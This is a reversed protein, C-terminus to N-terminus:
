RPEQEGGAFFDVHPGVYDFGLGPFFGVWLASNHSFYVFVPGFPSPARISVASLLLRM